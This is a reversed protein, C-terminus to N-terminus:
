TRRILRHVNRHYMPGGVTPEPTHIFDLVINQLDRPLPNLARRTTRITRRLRTEEDISPIYGAEYRIFHDVLHTCAFAEYMFLPVEYTRPDRLLLQELPHPCEYCVPFVCINIRSPRLALLYECVACERAQFAEVFAQSHNEIVPAMVRVYEMRGERAHIVFGTASAYGRDAYFQVMELSGHNLTAARLAAVEYVDRPIPDEMYRHCLEILPMCRTAVVRKYYAYDDCRMIRQFIGRFDPREVALMGFRRVSKRQISANLAMRYIAVHYPDNVDLSRLTKRDM